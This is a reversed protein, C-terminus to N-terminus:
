IKKLEFFTGNKIMWCGIEEIGVVVFVLFDQEYTANLFIGKWNKYDHNSPQPIDEPHTHWEGLYIQTGSSKRWYKNIVKQAKKKKRFFSFRKRIDDNYPVTVADVLIDNSKSIIKGILVGGAEPKSPENQVYMEFVKLVCNSITLINSRNFKFKMM